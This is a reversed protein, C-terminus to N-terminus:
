DTLARWLFVTRLLAPKGNKLEGFYRDSPYRFMEMIVPKDDMYGPKFQEVFVPGPRAPDYPFPRVLRVGVGGEHWWEGEIQVYSTFIALKLVVHGRRDKVELASKTYNIESTELPFVQWHNDTVRALLVGDRDHVDTSVALKGGKRDVSINSGAPTWNKGGGELLLLAPQYDEDTVPGIALLVDDKSGAIHARPDPAALLNGQTVSARESKWQALSLSNNAALFAVFLVGGLTLKLARSFRSIATKSGLLWLFLVFCGYWALWRWLVPM